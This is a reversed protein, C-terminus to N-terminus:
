RLMFMVAVTQVGDKSFSTGAPLARAREAALTKASRTWDDDAVHNGINSLPFARGAVSQMKIKPLTPTPHNM